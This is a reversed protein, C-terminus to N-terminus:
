RKSALFKAPDIEIRGKFHAGDEISIRSTSIDGIVSGDTRIDVRDTAFLNGVVKGHVIIGGASIESKLTATSGVTLVYGKLSIPGEMKGDIQLDETCEIQGTIHMGTGLHTSSASRTSSEAPRLAPPPAGFAVASPQFSTNKAPQVAPVESQTDVQTQTQTQPKSWM